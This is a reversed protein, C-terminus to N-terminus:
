PLPMANSFQGNNLFNASQRRQELRAGHETIHNSPDFAIRSPIIDLTGDAKKIAIQYSPPKGAAIEAQTQGDSIMGALSWNRNQGAGAIGVELSRRGPQFEPGAKTEIWKTLDGKMWDHSGEIQPYSREPPNKMVQNGAAASIGWTSGLRKVALDSAKDADVGYARLATYTARYDAVLEGGKISDFPVNPTAGTVVNAVRSLLPIGWSTGMKYAMDGPTLTSTEKEAAEKAEARAKVTSPEDAANLREALEAPSFSDKLGQWAQLKTIAAAGLANQADAPNARWLKDAADMGAAMRNPDKSSMIGTVADAIPKSAMTAQYVDGPLSALGNLSASAIAPDGNTLVNAFAQAEKGEFVSVPGTGDNARITKQLAARNAAVVGVAEPDNFNYAPPPKGNTRVAYTSYPTDQMAKANAAITDAMHEHVQFALPSEGAQAKSQTVWSQRVNEPLKDLEKVGYHAMLAINMRQRLDDQGTEALVASINSLIGDSLDGTKNLMKEATTVYETAQTKLYDRTRGVQEIRAANFWAEGANNGPGFRRAYDMVSTGNADRAANVGGSALADLTGQAGGLHMMGYLATRNITVGGITQGEYKDLGLSKIEQDMKGQHLGYAARQADPNALFEKVTKVEPHGPINFTGSWKGDADAGTKSWNKLNENPGPTYVGMDALRPAGFQYLGAYGLQNVKTPNGSSESGVLRGEFPTRTENLSRLAAIQQPLPLSRVTADWDHMGKAFTLKYYSEADGIKAANSIADNVQIPNYPASTKLQTLLTSTVAKNGDILAKSEASRAEMLGMATTVAAHRQTMSLNLSKDNYIKDILWKKAEARGNPNDSDMMRVAQGAIAMTKHQSTMESIESDIRAKPYVLRADSGLEGYLAGLDAQWQRYQPTDVGGNFAAETMRNSLDSIQSTVSVKMNQANTADTQVLSSRYNSSAANLATREVPGRLTPDIQKGVLEQTYADAASKFAQPDNPHQLRLETMKNEIEPTLRSLATFRAARAFEVAAPGVIPIAPSAITKGDASVAAEGEKQAQNVAVENAVEGAKSLNNALERYPSSVDAATISSTPAQATVLRTPITPLDVM